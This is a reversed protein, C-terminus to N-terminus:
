RRLASETGGLSGPGPTASAPRPRHDAAEPPTRTWRRARVRARRPSWAASRSAGSAGLRCAPWVSPGGAVLLLATWGLDLPASGLQRALRRRSSCSRRLAAVAVLALAVGRRLRVSPRSSSCGSTRARSWCRRPTRTPSGCASRAVSARASSSRGRGRRRGAGIDARRAWRALLRPAARGAAVARRASSWPWARDRATGVPSRAGGAVAGAAHGAAARHRGAALAFGAALLSRRLAGRGVWALGPPRGARPPPARARLRRDRVLVAGAAARWSCGCRGRRCCRAGTLVARTSAPPGGHRTTSRPSRACRPAGSPRCGARPRGARRRAPPASAASAVAAVAPLGAAM